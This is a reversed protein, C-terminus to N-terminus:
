FLFNFKFNFFDMPFSYKFLTCILSYVAQPALEHVQAQLGSLEGSMVSAGDNTKAILKSQINFKELAKCLVHYLGDVARDENINNYGLTYEQIEVTVRLRSITHSHFETNETIHWSTEDVMCACFSAQNISTEISNKVEDHLQRKYM